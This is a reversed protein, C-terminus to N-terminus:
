VADVLFLAFTDAQVPFVCLIREAVKFFVSMGCIKGEGDFYGVEAM